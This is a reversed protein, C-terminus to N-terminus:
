LEEKIIKYIKESISKKSLLKEDDICNVLVFNPFKEAAELYADYSDKLHDIDEEHIDHGGEGLYIAKEKQKEPDDINNCMGQAIIPPVDLIINIDPKPIEFINFELDYIWDLFEEREKQDAIKGAQHGANSGFYRDAIVVKGEELWEKIKFSADYRDCAFFISARYPGVEQPNGYVGNLYEEVPGASKEGYQPFSIKEVERGDENLRKALLKLQTFKGSGDTGEIVIFQGKKM